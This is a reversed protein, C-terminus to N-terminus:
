GSELKILATMVHSGSPPVTIADGGVNATEICVMRRWEEPSMDTLKATQENWPNWVVTTRSNSKEVIVRRQFSPDNLAVTAATNSYPRDTEGSLTLLREQQHKLKFGDTKDYFDTDGLGEISIKEVDSVAFYAHLAEEFSFPAAGHNQLDLRLDLTTGMRVKYRLEFEDYGLARSVDNPQLRFELHVETDVVGAFVVEWNSTRAFGHSPGDTRPSAVTASRAGFWPFIIPIGGRIAKGAVYQSKESLFIVPKKGTPQWETLHAGQLYIQAKCSQHGISAYILGSTSECFTLIGSISFKDNLETANM